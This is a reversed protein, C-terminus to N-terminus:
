EAELNKRLVGVYRAATEIEKASIRAAPQDIWPAPLRTAAELTKRGCDTLIV